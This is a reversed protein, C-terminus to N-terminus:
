KSVEKVVREVIEDFIPRMAPNIYDIGEVYGGTGTGHGYQILVAINAGDNESDNYWSIRAQGPKITVKYSWSSATEGTEKPTASRLARVGMQGYSDLVSFQAGKKARQLWAETNDFSGKSQVEIGM